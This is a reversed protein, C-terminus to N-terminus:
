AYRGIARRMEDRRLGESEALDLTAKLVKTANVNVAALERADVPIIAGHVIPGTCVTRDFAECEAHYREALERLRRDEPSVIWEQQYESM